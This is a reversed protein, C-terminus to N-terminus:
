RGTDRLMKLIEAATKATSMGGKLKGMMEEFEATNKMGPLMLEAAAAQAAALRVNFPQAAENFRWAQHRAEIEREVLATNMSALRNQARNNAVQSTKVALDADSQDRAIKLQTNLARAQQANSALDGVVNQMTASAGSPSSAGREYALAPNLGARRYDEAARQAATNSMQEQFAMQERAIQRNAKNASGQGIADGVVAFATTIPDLWDRLGM